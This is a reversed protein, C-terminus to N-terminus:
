QVPLIVALPAIVVLPGLQPGPQAEFQAGKITLLKVVHELFVCFILVEGSMSTSARQKQSINQMTPIQYSNFFCFFMKLASINKAGCVHLTHTKTSTTTVHMAFNSHKWWPKHAGKITLLKVVHELFVCFILVEGSMSPSARQIPTSTERAHQCAALEVNPLYVDQWFANKIM